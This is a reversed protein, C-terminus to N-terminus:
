TIVSQQEAANVERKEFSTEDPVAKPFRILFFCPASRPNSFPVNRYLFYFAIESKRSLSRSKMARCRRPCSASKTRNRESKMATSTQVHVCVTLLGHFGQVLKPSYFVIAMRM